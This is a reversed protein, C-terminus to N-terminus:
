VIRREAGKANATTSNVAQECDVDGLEVVSSELGMAVCGSAKGDGVGDMAGEPLFVGAGEAAPWDFRDITGLTAGEGCAGIAAFGVLVSGSSRM